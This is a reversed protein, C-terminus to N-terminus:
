SRDTFRAYFRGLLLPTGFIPFQYLAVYLGLVPDAPLAALYLSCNRNGAMVGQAGAEPGAGRGALATAVQLGFNVAFVLALVGLSLWPRQVLLEAVGDFLPIVFVLLVLAAAGDFAAGSAEIREAGIWRRLALAALTGAAVMAGLRLALAGADLAVAEGLLLWCVPPGLVPVLFSALISVELALAADLGLLLCFAASSAIPPSAAAYIVAERLSGEFGAVWALGALLIPTAVLLAAVAGLTRALRAPRVARRLLAALDIRVMAVAFIAAVFAPLAPRLFSALSPVFLALVAGILLLWRARAGVWALARSM